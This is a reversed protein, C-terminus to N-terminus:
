IPYSSQLSKYLNKLNYEEIFINRIVDSEFVKELLIDNNKILDDIHYLYNALVLEIIENINYLVNNIQSKDISSVILRIYYQTLSISEGGIQKTINAYQKPLYKNFTDENSNYEDRIKNLNYQKFTKNLINFQTAGDRKIVIHIFSYIQFLLKLSEHTGIGKLLYPCDDLFNTNNYTFDGNNLLYQLDPNLVIPSSFVYGNRYLTLYNIIKQSGMMHAIKIRKVDIKNKDGSYYQRVLNNIEIYFRMEDNKMAFMFIDEYSFEQKILAYKVNDSTKLQHNKRCECLLIYRNEYNSKDDYLEGFFEDVLRLFYYYNRFNIDDYHGRLNKDILNFWNRNDQSWEFPAKSTVILSQRSIPNSYEIIKGYIDKPIESM